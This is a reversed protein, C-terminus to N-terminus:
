EGACGATTRSTGYPLEAINNGDDGIEESEEDDANLDNSDDGLSFRRAVGANLLREGASAAGM